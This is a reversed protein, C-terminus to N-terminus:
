KSNGLQHLGTARTAVQDEIPILPPMSLRTALRLWLEGANAEGERFLQNARFAAVHHADFGHL